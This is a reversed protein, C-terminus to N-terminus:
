NYRLLYAYARNVIDVDDRLMGIGTNCNNCLLGRVKGNDHNHDIYLLEFEDLCIACKKEQENLMNNYSDPSIGYDKIYLYHRTCYGKSRYPNNCGSAQCEKNKSYGTKRNRLPKLEIGSSMQMYHGNCFGKARYKNECGDFSCFKNM